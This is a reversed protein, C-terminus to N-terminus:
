ERALLDRPTDNPTDPLHEPRGGRLMTLAQAAAVVLLLAAGVPILLQPWWLPVDELNTGMGIMRSFSVTEWGEILLIAAVVLVSLIGAMFMLRATRMSVRGVPVDVGIHEFRRQAEPAALMVVAVVLWGAVHDIWAIPMALVYRAFVGICILAFCVVLAVGSLAVAVRALLAALRNM